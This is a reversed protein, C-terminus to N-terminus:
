CCQGFGAHEFYENGTIKHKYIYYKQYHLWFAGCNKAECEVRAFVFGPPPNTPSYAMSVTPALIAFLMIAALLIFMISKFSITKKKDVMTTM